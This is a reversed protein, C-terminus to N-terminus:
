FYFKAAIQVIRQERTGNYEGFYSGLTKTSGAPRLNNTILLQSFNAVNLVSAGTAGAATTMNTTTNYGSFQTHNFANFGELRLQLYKKGDGSIKFNKYLSLDTNNTGPGRIYTRPWPALDGPQGLYVSNINIHDGNNGVGPAIVASSQYFLPGIGM